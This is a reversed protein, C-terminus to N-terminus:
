SKNESTNENRIERSFDLDKKLLDFFEVLADIHVTQNVSKNKLGFSGIFNDTRNKILEIRRILDPSGSSAYQNLIQDCTKNLHILEGMLMDMNTPMPFGNQQTSNIAPKNFNYNTFIRRILDGNILNMDPAKTLLDKGYHFAEEIDPDTNELPILCHLNMRFKVLFESLSYWYREAIIQDKETYQIIEKQNDNRLAHWSDSAMLGFVTTIAVGILSVIIYFIFQGVIKM